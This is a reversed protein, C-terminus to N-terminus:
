RQVELRTAALFRRGNETHVTGQAHILVPAFCIAPGLENGAGSIADTNVLLDEERGGERVRLAPRCADTQHLICHACVAEGRLSVFQVTAPPVVPAPAKSTVKAPATTATAIDRPPRPGLTALAVALALFVGAACAGALVWRGVTQGSTTPYAAPRQATDRGQGEAHLRAQIGGWFAEAGRGPSQVQDWLEWLMLHERIDRLREPEAAIGRNMEDAESPSLAGDLLQGLLEHYRGETM